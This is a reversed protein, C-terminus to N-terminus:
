HFVSMIYPDAKAGLLCRRTTYFEMVRNNGFWDKAIIERVSGRATKQEIQYRQKYRKIVSKRLECLRRCNLNLIRITNRVIDCMSVSSAGGAEVVHCADEDPNLEGTKRDLAFLCASPMLYPNLIATKDDAKSADCHLEPEDSKWMNNSKGGHCVGLLNKWDLMWNHDTSIDSKPHIHEIRRDGKLPLRMECYACLENQNRALADAIHEKLTKTKEKVSPDLGSLLVSGFANWDRMRPHMERYRAFAPPESAYDIRHM